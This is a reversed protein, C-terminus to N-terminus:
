LSERHAGIAAIQIASEPSAPVTAAYQLVKPRIAPKQPEIFIRLRNGCPLRQRGFVAAKDNHLAAKGLETRFSQLAAQCSFDASNQQIEPNGRWLQVVGLAAEAEHIITRQV